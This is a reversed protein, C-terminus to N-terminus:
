FMREKMQRATTLNEGDEICARWLDNFLQDDPNTRRDGIISTDEGSSPAMLEMHRGNDEKHSEVDVDLAFSDDSDIEFINPPPRPNM